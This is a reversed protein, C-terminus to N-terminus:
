QVIGNQKLYERPEGDLVELREREGMGDVVHVIRSSQMSAGQQYTYVGSYDLRQAAEQAQQLFAAAEDPQASWAPALGLGLALVVGQALGFLVRRGSM